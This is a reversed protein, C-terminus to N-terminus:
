IHILSLGFTEHLHGSLALVPKYQKIFNAYSKCGVHKKLYDIYDLKTKYPPGHTMLIIKKNELKKKNAKIFKEFKKDTTGFGGEGYGTLTYKKIRTIKKHIFNLNKYKTCLKDLIKTTEHNGPIIYTPTNLSNIKRMIEDIHREFITFDGLCLIIDPKNKKTKQQIKKLKTISGHIDTFALIKM